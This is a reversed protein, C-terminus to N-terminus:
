IRLDCSVAFITAVTKPFYLRGCFGNVQALSPRSKDVTWGLCTEGNLEVRFSPLSSRVSTLAESANMRIDLLWEAM